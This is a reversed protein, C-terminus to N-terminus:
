TSSRPIACSRCRPTTSMCIASSSTPSNRPTCAGHSGRAVVRQDRACQGQRGFLGQRAPYARARFGLAGRSAGPEHHIARYQLRPASRRRAERHRAARRFLHRQHTRPHHRFRRGEAGASEAAGIGVTGSQRQDAAFERLSRIQQAAVALRGGQASGGASGQDRARRDRGVPDRRGRGDSRRYRRAAGQRDCSVSHPWIAGRAVGDARRTEGCVLRSHAPVARDGGPRHGRRRGRRGQDHQIFREHM